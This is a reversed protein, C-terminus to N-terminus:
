PEGERRTAPGYGQSPRLGAEEAGPVLEPEEFGLAVDWDLTTLLEHGAEPGIGKATLDARLRKLVSEKTRYLAKQELGLSRAVEAVTFGSELHLRLFIRDQAPLRRLTLGIVSFTRDALAQREAREVALAGTVPAKVEECPGRAVRGPLKLSMTYLADRTETVAPDSELVGYAEDFTLGDRFMLRELRLAVPGLQRAQASPRWKGFRQVQFDLYLRNIVAALYTKMSSRGEFKALVEYDQEILRHKVLSGFDEADAGRLRRRACVWSIVREIVALQSLFLQERSM